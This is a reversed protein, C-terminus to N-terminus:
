LCWINKTITPFWLPEKAEELCHQSIGFSLLYALQYCWSSEGDQLTRRSFTTDLQVSTTDWVQCLTITEYLGLWQRDKKYKKKKNWSAILWLEKCWIETNSISTENTIGSTSPMLSQCSYISEFFVIRTKRDWIVRSRQLVQYCWLSIRSDPM